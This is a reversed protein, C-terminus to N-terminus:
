IEEEKDVGIIEAYACTRTVTNIRVKVRHHLFERGGSINITYGDILAIGDVANLSHPEQVVVTVNEGEYVPLSLKEIRIKSGKAVVDFTEMPCEEESQIAIFKGTEKELKSLRAGGKGIVLGAVKPHLKILFAEYNQTQCIQRIKREAMIAMAEVSIIFGKGECQICKQFYTEHLGGPINERALEVLGLKSMELIKIKARDKALMSKFLKFFEERQHADEMDIFDIVIIGGIDRLRIQRSVELAAESNTQFITEALDSRGIYSGTNVDISTLAETHDIVITGGSPLTVERQLAKEIQEDIHYRYFLNEQGQYLHIREALGPSVVNLYSIIKNYEEISDIYVAEFEQNFIDRIVRKVLTPERYVLSPASMGKSARRLKIWESRLWSLDKVLETLGINMAATRAIIGMGRPKIKQCLEYLRKREEDPLRRSAGAFENYPLLVLYRGPLTIEGTVRAGKNGIQEKTVQVLIEDKRRLLDKIKREDHPIEETPYVIEKVYLFANKELGIDVFAAELGPLINKVRGLYINGVIHDEKSRELYLETLIKEELIAVRTEYKDISIFLEKEKGTPAEETHYYAYSLPHFIPEYWDDSM